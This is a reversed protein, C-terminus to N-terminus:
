LWRLTMARCLGFAVDVHMGPVVGCGMWSPSGDGEDYPAATPLSTAARRVMPVTAANPATGVKATDTM